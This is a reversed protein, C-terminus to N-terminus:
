FTIVDVQVHVKIYMTISLNLIIKRLVFESYTGHFLLLDYEKLIEM